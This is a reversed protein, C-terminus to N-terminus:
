LKIEYQNVAFKKLSLKYDKVFKDVGKVVGPKNGYDDGFIMGGNHKKLHDYCNVLDKYVGDEEHSADVYFWDVQENFTEFFKDTTMRSIDVNVRSSFREVVAEYISDYYKVFNEETDGGVQGKYRDVFRQWVEDNEKYPTIDWSDVLFLKKAKSLFKESSDGMWVGLEVGVTNSPIRKVTELVQTNVGRMM